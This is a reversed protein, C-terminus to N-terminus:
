VEEHIPLLSPAKWARAAAPPPLLNSINQTMLMQKQVNEPKLASFGAPALKAWSNLLKKTVETDKVISSKSIKSTLKDIIDDSNRHLADDISMSEFSQSKFKPAISPLLQKHFFQSPAALSVNHKSDKSVSSLVTDTHQTSQPAPFRFSIIM